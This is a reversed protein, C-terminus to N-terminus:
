NQLVEGEGKGDGMAKPTPLRLLLPTRIIQLNNNGFKHLM